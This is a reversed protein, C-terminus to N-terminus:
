IEKLVIEECQMAAAQRSRTEAKCHNGARSVVRWSIVIAINTMDM